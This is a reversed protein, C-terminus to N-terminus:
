DFGGQSAIPKVSTEFRPKGLFKRFEVTSLQQIDRPNNKNIIVVMAEGNPGAGVEKVEYNPQAIQLQANLRLKNLEANAGITAVNRASAGQMATQALDTKSALGARQNLGAEQMAIRGTAAKERFEDGPAKANEIAMAKGGEAQIMAAANRYAESFTMLGDEILKRRSVNQYDPVPQDEVLLNIKGNTLVQMTFTRGELYSMTSLLKTFDGRRADQVGQMGHLMVMNNDITRIEALLTRQAVTDRAVAAERTQAILENRKQLQMQIERDPRNREGLLTPKWREMTEPATAVNSVQEVFATPNTVENATPPTKPVGLGVRRGKDGKFAGTYFNHGGRQAVMNNDIAWNPKNRGLKQQADPAYMLTAGNVTDPAGQSIAPRIADLIRRYEVPSLNQMQRRKTRDGWPEFQHVGKGNNALVIEKISKGSRVARNIILNAVDAQGAAGSGRAEGWVTRVLFDLDEGTAALNNRLLMPPAPATTVPAAAKPKVGAVQTPAPTPAPEPAPAEVIDPEVYRSKQTTGDPNITYGGPLRLGPGLNDLEKAVRDASMAAAAEQRRSQELQQQQLEDMRRMTNEKTRLEVGAAFDKPGRSFANLLLGVM